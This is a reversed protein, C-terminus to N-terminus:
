MVVCGFDCECLRECWSKREGKGRGKVLHQRRNSSKVEVWGGRRMKIAGGRRKVEITVEREGTRGETRNQPPASSSLSRPHSWYLTQGRIKWRGCSVNVEVDLLDLKGEISELIRRRRTAPRQQESSDDSDGNENDNDSDPVFGRPLGYMKPTEMEVRSEGTRQIRERVNLDPDWRAKSGELVGDSAFHVLPLYIETVGMEGAEGDWEGSETEGERMEVEDRENGSVRVVCRFEAKAIDFRTDVAEGGRAVKVPRPRCFARVARAGNTLFDYPDEDAEHTTSDLLTSSSSSTDKDKTQATSTLTTTTTTTTTTVTTQTTITPAPLPPVPVVGDEKVFGNPESSEEDDVAKLSFTVSPKRALGQATGNANGTASGSGSLGLGLLTPTSASPTFLVPSDEGGDGVM